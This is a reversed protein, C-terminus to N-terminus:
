PMVFAKAPPSSGVDFLPMHNQLWAVTRLERRGTSTLAKRARENLMKLLNEPGGVADAPKCATASPEVQVQLQVQVRVQVTSPQQAVWEHKTPQAKDAKAAPDPAPPCPAAAGEPTPTELPPLRALQLNQQTFLWLALADAGDAVRTHLDSSRLLAPMVSQCPKAQDQRKDPDHQQSIRDAKGAEVLTSLRPWAALPESARANLAQRNGNVAILVRNGYAKLCKEGYATEALLLDDLLAILGSSIVLARGDLRRQRSLQPVPTPQILLRTERRMEAEAATEQPWTRKADRWGNFAAVWRAHQQQSASVSAPLAPKDDPASIAPQALLLTATAIFARCHRYHAPSIHIM